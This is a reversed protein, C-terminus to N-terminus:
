LGDQRMGVPTKLNGIELTFWLVQRAQRKENSGYNAQCTAQVPM